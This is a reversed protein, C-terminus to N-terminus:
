PKIEYFVHFANEEFDYRKVSSFGAEKAFQRLKTEGMCVGTGVGGQALATTMCYGIGTAYGFAGLGLPHDINKQLDGYVNVELVFYTGDPKLAKRIETMLEVPFALDHVVDFTTILDYKGPIGKSADLTEASVRGNTFGAATLNERAANISPEWIDFGYVKANPFGQALHVLSQGNGCGIDAVSGGAELKEAVGDLAPIWLDNMYNLFLPRTFREIGCYCSHDYQNMPVGGGNKFADEIQPLVRWFNEALAFIGPLYVPSDKNTLVFAHEPSLSFEKSTDDYDIVRHCAMASLWERGYRENIGAEEAFQQSTAPGCHELADFLELRDGLQILMGMETSIFDNVTKFAFAHAVDQDIEHTTEIAM